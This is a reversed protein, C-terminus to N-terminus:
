AAKTLCSAQPASEAVHSPTGGRELANHFGVSILGHLSRASRPSQTRCEEGASVM